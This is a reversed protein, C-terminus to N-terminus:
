VRRFHRGWSDGARGTLDQWPLRLARFKIHGRSEWAQGTDFPPARQRRHSWFGMMTARPMTCSMSRHAPCPLPMVLVIPCFITQLSRCVEVEAIGFQLLGQMIKSLREPHLLQRSNTCEGIDGSQKASQISVGFGHPQKCRMRGADHAHERLCWAPLSLTPIGRGRQM